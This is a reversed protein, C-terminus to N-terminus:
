FLALEMLLLTFLIINKQNSIDLDQQKSHRLFLVNRKIIKLNGLKLVLTKVLPMKSNLKKIKGSNYNIFKKLTGEGGDAMSDILIKKNKIKKRLGKFIYKGLQDGSAYNKFGSLAILIM